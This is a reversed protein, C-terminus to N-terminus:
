TGKLSLIGSVKSASEHKFPPVTYSRPPNKCYVKSVNKHQAGSHVLCLPGGLLARRETGQARSYAAIAMCSTCSDRGDSQNEYLTIGLFMEIRIWDM